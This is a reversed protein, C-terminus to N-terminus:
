APQPEPLQWALVTRESSVALLLDREPAVAVSRLEAPLAAEGLMSGDSRIVSLASEETVAVVYHRTPLVDRAPLGPVFWIETGDVSFAGVGAPGALVIVDAGPTRAAAIAPFRLQWLQDGSDSDFVQMGATTLAITEAGSQTFLVQLLDGEVGFRQALNGDPQILVVQNEGLKSSGVGVTGTAPHFDVWAAGIYSKTPGWLQGRRDFAFVHGLGSANTSRVILRGGFEDFLVQEILQNDPRFATPWVANGAADLLMVDFGHVAIPEGAPHVSAHALPMRLERTWLPRGNADFAAVAGARSVAVIREGSASSAIDTPEFDLRALWALEQWSRAVVPRIETIEFALDTVQEIRTEFARSRWVAASADASVADGFRGVEVWRRYVPSLRVDDLLSSLRARAQPEDDFQGVLVALVPVRRVDIEFEGLEAAIQRLGSSARGPGIGAVFDDLESRVRRTLTLIHVLQEAQATKRYARISPLVEVLADIAAVLHAHSATVETPPELPVVLEALQSIDPFQAEVARAFREATLTNRAFARQSLELSRLVDLARTAVTLAPEWYPALPAPAVTQRSEGCASALALAAAAGLLKRRPWRRAPAM